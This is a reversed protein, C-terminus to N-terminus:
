IEKFCPVGRGEEELWMGGIHVRRGEEEITKNGLM